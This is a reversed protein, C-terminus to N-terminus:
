QLVQNIDEQSFYGDDIYEQWLPKLKEVFLNHNEPTIENVIMNERLFDEVEQLKIAQQTIFYDTSAQAAFEVLKQYEYPLSEFFDLNMCLVGPFLSYKVLSLYKQVEYFKFAEIQFLPNEQGDIVGQKLAMYLDGLAMSQPSAGLYQMSKQMVDMPPVRLILGKLDDPKEIPRVNNTINRPTEAMVGLVYYGNQKAEEKYKDMLPNTRIFDNAQEWSEFLFPMQIISYKKNVTEYWCWAMEIAGVKVGDTIDSQSGLQSSPFHEVSINGDSTHEIIEKFLIESKGIISDPPQVGALKITYEQAFVPQTFIGIILILSLISIILYQKNNKRSVLM